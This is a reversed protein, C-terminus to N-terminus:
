SHTVIEIGVTKRRVIAFREFRQKATGMILAKGVMLHGNLLQKMGRREIKDFVLCDAIKVLLARVAPVLCLAM